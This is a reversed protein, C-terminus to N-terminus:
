STDGHGEIKFISYHVQFSYQSMAYYCSVIISGRIIDILTKYIELNQRPVQHNSNGLRHISSNNNNSSQLRTCNSGEEGIRFVGAGVVLVQKWLVM